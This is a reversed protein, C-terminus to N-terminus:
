IILNVLGENEYALTATGEAATSESLSKESDASYFSKSGEERQRKGAQGDNVSVNLSANEFGEQRFGRYLAELNQEFVERVSSNEVIIKGVINNDQLNLRIRVNGLKEPKLNLRIEASNNNKLVISAQRVVERNGMTKLQQLLRSQDHKTINQTNERRVTFGEEREAAQLMQHKDISGSGNSHQREGAERKLQQHLVDALKVSSDETKGGSDRRDVVTMSFRRRRDGEVEKGDYTRETKQKAMQIGDKASAAQQPVQLVITKAVAKQANQQQGDAAIRQATSRLTEELHKGGPRVSLEPEAQAEGQALGGNGHVTTAKGTQSEESLLTNLMDSLPFTLKEKKVLSHEETKKAKEKIVEKQTHLQVTQLRNKEDTTSALRKGSIDKGKLLTKTDVDTVDVKGEKLRRSKLVNKLINSFPLHPESTGEGSVRKEMADKTLAREKQVNEMQNAKEAGKGKASQAKSSSSVDAKQQSFATQEYEQLLIHM